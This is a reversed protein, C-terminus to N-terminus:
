RRFLRALLYLGYIVLILPLLRVALAAGAFLTRFLLGPVAVLGCVLALGFGWRGIAGITTAVALVLAALLFLLWMSAVTKVVLFLGLVVLVLGLYKPM